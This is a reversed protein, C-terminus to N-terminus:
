RLAQRFQAYVAAPNGQRARAVAGIWQARQHTFVQELAADIQQRGVGAAFLQERWILRSLRGNGDVLPHILLVALGCLLAREIPDRIANWEAAAAQFLGAFDRPEPCAYLGM